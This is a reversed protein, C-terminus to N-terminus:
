NSNAYFYEVKKIVNPANLFLSFSNGQTQKPQVTKGQLLLTTLEFGVQQM